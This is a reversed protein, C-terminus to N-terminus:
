DERDLWALLVPRMATIGKYDAMETPLDVLAAALQAREQSDLADLRRQFTRISFVIAGSTPLRRLTQREVRVWVGGAGELEVAAMPADDPQHLGPDTLISWNRREVVGGPRLKRLVQTVRDALHVDYGPVPAHVAPLLHGL